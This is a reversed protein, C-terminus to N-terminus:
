KHEKINEKKQKRLQINTDNRFKKIKQIHQNYQTQLNQKNKLSMQNSSRIMNNMGISNTNQQNRTQTNPTRNPM